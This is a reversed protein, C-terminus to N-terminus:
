TKLCLFVILPWIAYNLILGSVHYNFNSTTSIIRVLIPYAPFFAWNAQGLRNVGETIASESYGNKAIGVYWACDWRCAAITASEVGHAMINYSLFNLLLLTFILLFRKTLQQSFIRM